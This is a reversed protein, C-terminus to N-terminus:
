QVRNLLWLASGFFPHLAGNILTNLIYKRDKEVLYNIYGFIGSSRATLRQKRQQHV